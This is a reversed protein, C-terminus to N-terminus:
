HDRPSSKGKNHILSEKRPKAGRRNGLTGNQDAWDSRPQAHHQLSEKLASCVFPHLDFPSEARLVTLPYLSSPIMERLQATDCPM